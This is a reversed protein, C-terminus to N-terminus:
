RIINGKYGGDASGDEKDVAEVLVSFESRDLVGKNGLYRILSALYLRLENNEKELQAVRGELAMKQTGAEAELKQRLAEIEDKQEQIDLQQGLDGLLLWTGWGM